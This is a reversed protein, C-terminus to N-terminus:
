PLRDTSKRRSFRGSTKRKPGISRNRSRSRRATARIRAGMDIWKVFDAIVSEPLKKDPPMKPELHRLAKIILSQEAQGPVMAKGSEGGKLMAAKSDLRFEGRQKTDGHCKQCHEVLVPRIKTEFFTVGADDAARSTGSAIGTLVVFTVVWSRMSRGKCNAIRRCGFGAIGFNPLVKRAPKLALRCAPLFELPRLTKTGTMQNANYMTDASKCFLSKGLNDVSSAAPRRGVRQTM